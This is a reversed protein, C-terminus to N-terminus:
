AAVVVRIHCGEPPQVIRRVVHRVRLLVHLQEVVAATAVGGVGVVGDHLAEDHVGEAHTNFGQAKGPWMWPQKRTM